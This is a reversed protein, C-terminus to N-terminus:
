TASGPEGDRPRLMGPAAPCQPPLGRLPPGGASPPLLCGRPKWAGREKVFSFSLSLSASSSSVPGKDALQGRTPAVGCSGNGVRGDMGERSPAALLPMPGRGPVMGGSQGDMGEKSPAAPRPMPGWGADGWSQPERWPGPGTHPLVVARGALIGIQQELSSCSAFSLLFVDFHNEAGLIM